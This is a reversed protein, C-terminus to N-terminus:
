IDWFRDVDKTKELMVYFPMFFSGKLVMCQAILTTKKIGKSEAVCSMGNVAIELSM